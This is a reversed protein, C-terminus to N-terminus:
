AQDHLRLDMIGEHVLDDGGHLAQFNIVGQLVSRHDARDNVVVLQLLVQFVDVDAALFTSLESPAAFEEVAVGLPMVQRRGEEHVRLVVHADVALFDEAGDSGDDLHVRVLLRQTYGIVRCKPRDDPM